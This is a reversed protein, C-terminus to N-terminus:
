CKKVEDVIKKIDEIGVGLEILNKVEEKFNIIAKEMYKLTEEGQVSKVFVGKGAQTEVFGLLELEKYAKQVTNPNLILESSLSRVSPLKDGDKLIEKFILNKVQEVIQTNISIPSNKEINLM